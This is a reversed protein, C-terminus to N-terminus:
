VKGSVANDSRRLGLSHEFPVLGKSLCAHPAQYKASQDQHWRQGCKALRWRFNAMKAPVNQDGRTLRCLTGAAEETGGFHVSMGHAVHPHESSVDKKVAGHIAIHQDEAAIDGEGAAGVNAALDENEPSVQM